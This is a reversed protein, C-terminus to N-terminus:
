ILLFGQPEKGVNIRKIIKNNIIDIVYVLNNIMDSVYLFPGKRILKSPMGELSIRRKLTKKIMSFEYLCGDEPNTLLLVDKYMVLDMYNGKIKYHNIMKCESDFISISSYNTLGNNLYSLIYVKSDYLYLKFAQGEINFTNISNDKLNMRSISSRNTSVIYAQSTSEDIQIDSPKEDIPIEELVTLDDEDIISLSNSDCNLIYLMSNYRRICIPTRGLKKLYSSKFTELNLTILSEDFSNVIYLDEHNKMVMDWPGLRYNKNKSLYVKKTNEMNNLDIISITDDGINGTIIRKSVM